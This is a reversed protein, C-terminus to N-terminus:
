GRTRATVGPAQHTQAVPSSAPPRSLRRAQASGTTAARRSALRGWVLSVLWFALSLVLVNLVLAVANVAIPHEWPSLFQAQYPFSPPNLYQDQTIWSVPLGFELHRMDDATYATSRSAVVLAVVIAASSSVLVAAKIARRHRRWAGSEPTSSTPM